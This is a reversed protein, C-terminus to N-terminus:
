YTFLFYSPLYFHTKSFGFCKFPHEAVELGPHPGEKCFPWQHDHVVEAVSTFGVPGRAGPEEASHRCIQPRPRGM